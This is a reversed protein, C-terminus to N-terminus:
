FAATVLLQMGLFLETPQWAVRIFLCPQEPHGVEELTLETEPGGGIVTSEVENIGVVRYSREFKKM